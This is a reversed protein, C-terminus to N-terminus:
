ESRLVEEVWEGHIEQDFWATEVLGLNEFYCDDALPKVVDEDVGDRLRYAGDSFDMDSVWEFEEIWVVGEISMVCEDRREAADALEGSSIVHDELAEQQVRPIGDSYHNELVWGYSPEYDPEACGAAFIVLVLAVILRPM